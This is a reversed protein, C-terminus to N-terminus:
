CLHVLLFLEGVGGAGKPLVVELRLGLDGRVLGGGSILGWGFVKLEDIVLM